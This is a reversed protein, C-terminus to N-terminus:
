KSHQKPSHPTPLQQHQQAAKLADLKKADQERFYQEEKAAAVAGMMGGAERVSGGYKGSTNGIPDM